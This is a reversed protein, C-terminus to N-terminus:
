QFSEKFLIGQRRTYSRETLVARGLDQGVGTTHAGVGNGIVVSRIQGDAGDASQQTHFHAPVLGGLGDQQALLGAAHVQNLVVANIMPQHRVNGKPPLNGGRLIFGLRNPTNGWVM